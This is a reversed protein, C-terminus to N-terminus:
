ALSPPRGEVFGGAIESVREFRGEAIAQLPDIGLDVNRAGLWFAILREGMGYRLLLLVVYRLDDLRGYARIPVEPDSELWRAVTAQSVGAGRAIEAQTLGIRSHFIKVVAVWDETYYLSLYLDEQPWGEGGQLGLSVAETGGESGRMEIQTTSMKM